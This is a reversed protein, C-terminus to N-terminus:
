GDEPLRLRLHRVIRATDRGESSGRLAAQFAKRVEEASIPTPHRLIVDVVTWSGAYAAVELLSQNSENKVAANGSRRLFTKVTESDGATAAQFATREPARLGVVKQSPGILLPPGTFWGGASAKGIFVILILACAPSLSRLTKNLCRGLRDASM